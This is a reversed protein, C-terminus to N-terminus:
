GIRSAPGRTRDGLLRWAVLLVVTALLGDAVRQLLGRVGALEPVLMLFFLGFWAATAARLFRRGAADLGPAFSLLFFAAGAAFYTVLGLLDHVAQLASGGTVCGADCPALAAGVFAIPQSWLLLFGTRSRGAVRAVPSAVVLFCAFLVGLPVFGLLGLERAWPTGTANLESIFQASHSYGPKMAAGVVYFTTGFVVTALALNRALRIRNDMGPKM